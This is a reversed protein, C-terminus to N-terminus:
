KKLQAPWNTVLTISSSRTRDVSLVAVRQGDPSVDYLPFSSIVNPFDMHFLRHVADAHFSAGTHITAAMLDNGMTAYFIENHSFRALWGGTTSIQSKAGGGPFPVVFVEPRGTEYAFYCIWRGDASFRGEYESVKLDATAAPRFPKANPETIPLVWNSFLGDNAIMHISLFKGDPSWDIPIYREHADESYISQEPTHGDLPRRRLFYKGNELVEYILDKGDSSWVAFSDDPGFTLRSPQGGAVSFIWIDNKETRPDEISVAIQKGDPSFRPTEYLAEAGLKAIFNGSRDYLSLESMESGENYVLIGTTSISFYGAEGLDQPDGSLKWTKLDFDQAQIRSDRIFLLRGDAYKPGAGVGIEVSARDIGGVEGIKIRGREPSVRTSYLFHKGDPLFSPEDHASENAALRTETKVTGGFAPVSYIPGWYNKCFLITGNAGWSGRGTETGLGDALMQADGGTARIKMLQGDASYALYQSDPSWFPFSADNTGPLPTADVSDLARTWLQTLGKGDVATFAITKGDPSIAVPGVDLGGSIRFATGPPPPIYARVSPSNDGPRKTVFNSITQGALLLALVGLAAYLKWSNGSVAPRDSSAAPNVGGTSTGAASIGKLQLRVDQASQFREDRDKALCTTVLYDLAAPMSPNKARIPEPDKELIASAVTIQSKGEFARQGTAMEYLVAGFSFIDSRADIDRGEIQEPSMYLITGLISGATTLPSNPSAVPSAMSTTNVASLLPAASAAGPIAPKALGFDMLKAGSKTLMINGPKLDRHVIGARHAVHLAEATEMSIKLLEGLPLPGKRLRDALTEGELFEMVLFETGDQSGVDYLQCIHAHNLSSVTRAEREFRQKIEPSTSLHAALIKIAVTRDLRTDKAKYVEGMGGAGLPSQIQYPGLKTGATLPM